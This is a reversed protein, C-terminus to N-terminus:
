MQKNERLTRVFGILNFAYSTLIRMIALLGNSMGMCKLIDMNAIRAGSLHNGVSLSIAVLHHITTSFLAEKMGVEGVKRVQLM